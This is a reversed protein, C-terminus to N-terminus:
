SRFPLIIGIIFKFLGTVGKVHSSFIMFFPRYLIRNVFEIIGNFAERYSSMVYDVALEIYTLDAYEDYDEHFIHDYLMPLFIIILYMLVGFFAITKLKILKIDVQSKKRRNDSRSSVSSGDNTRMPMVSEVQNAFFDDARENDELLKVSNASPRKSSLIQQSDSDLKENIMSSLVSCRKLTRIEPPSLESQEEYITLNGRKKNIGDQNFCEEQSNENLKNKNLKRYYEWYSKSLLKQTKYPIRKPKESVIDTETRPSNVEQNNSDISKVNNVDQYFKQSNSTTNNNNNFKGMFGESNQYIDLSHNDKKQLRPSINRREFDCSRIRREDILKKSYGHSSKRRTRHQETWLFGFESDTMEDKGHSCDSKKKSYSTACRRQNQSIVPESNRFNQWVGHSLNQESKIKSKLNPNDIIFKGRKEDLDSFDISQRYKYFDGHTQFYDILEYDKASNSESNYYNRFKKKRNLQMLMAENDILESDTTAPFFSEKDDMNHEKCRIRYHEDNSMSESYNSEIKELCKECPITSKSKSKTRCFCIAENKEEITKGNSSENKELKEKSNSTLKLSIGDPLLDIIKKIETENGKAKRIEQRTELSKDGEEQFECNAKTTTERINKDVEQSVNNLLCKENQQNECNLTFSLDKEIKLAEKNIDNKEEKIEEDAKRTERQNKKEVNIDKELTSPLNEKTKELNVPNSSDNVLNTTEMATEQNNDNKISKLQSKVSTVKKFRPDVSGPRRRLPLPMSQCSYGSNYISSEVNERSSIGKM